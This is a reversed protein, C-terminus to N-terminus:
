LFIGKDEKIMVSLTEWCFKYNIRSKFIPQCKTLGTVFRTDHIFLQCGIIIVIIIVIINFVVVTQDEYHIIVVEQNITKVTRFLILKMFM